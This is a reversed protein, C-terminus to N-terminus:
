HQAMQDDDAYSARITGDAYDMEVWEDAAEGIGQVVIILGDTGPYIDAGDGDYYKGALDGTDFGLDDLTMNSPFTVHEAEYIRMASRIAGLAAVGETGHAREVNTRMMPIAVAALIGVIIIVVLLEILTFGKKGLM